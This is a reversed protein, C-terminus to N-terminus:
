KILEPISWVEVTRGFALSIMDDGPGFAVAKVAVPRKVRHLAKGTAPDFIVLWGTADTVALRAGSPSFSLGTVATALVSTLKPKGGAMSWIGVNGQEDGTAFDGTEVCEAWAKVAMRHDRSPAEARMATSWITITGDPQGGFLRNGPAWALFTLGNPKAPDKAPNGAPTIEDGKGPLAYDKAKPPSQVFKSEIVRHAIVNNRVAAFRIRAGDLESAITVPAGFLKAPAAPPGTVPAAIVGNATHAFVFRTKTDFQLRVVAGDAKPGPLMPDFTAQDLPWLRTTGDAHGIGLLKSAPALALATVTDPGDELASSGNKKARDLHSPPSGPPPEPGKPGPEPSSIPPPPPQPPPQESKALDIGKQRGTFYAAAGFLFVGTVFACVMAMVFMQLPVARRSLIVIAANIVFGVLAFAGGVQLGFEPGLETTQSLVLPGGALGLAFILAAGLMWWKFRYDTATPAPREGALFSRTDRALARAHRSRFRFTVSRGDPGAATLEGPAPCDVPAGLPVYFFPKMPEYELFLGHPLFVGVCPGVAGLSDALVWVPVRFPVPEAPPLESPDDDLSLIEVPATPHPKTNSTHATATGNASTDRALPSGATVEAPASPKSSEPLYPLPDDEEALSIPKPPDAPKPSPAPKPAPIPKTVTIVPKDPLTPSDDVDVLPPSKRTPDLDAPPAAGSMTATPLYATAELAPTLDVPALCKPCKASRSATLGDPLKLRKGCARCVLRVAM